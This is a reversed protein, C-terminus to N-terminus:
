GEKPISVILANAAALLTIIGTWASYRGALPKSCSSWVTLLTFRCILGLSWISPVLLKRKKWAGSFFYVVSPIATVYTALCYGLFLGYMGLGAVRELLLCLGIRAVVGDSLGLILNLRANGIGQIFPAFAHMLCRAPIGILATSMFLAAM